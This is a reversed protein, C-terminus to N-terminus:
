SLGSKVPNYDNHYKNKPVSFSSFGKVKGYNLFRYGLNLEANNNVKLSIGSALIILFIIIQNLM